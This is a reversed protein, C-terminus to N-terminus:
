SSVTWTGVYSTAHWKGVTVCVLRIACGNDTASIQDTGATEDAGIRITDTGDPVVTLTDNNQLVFEYSLGVQAPPLNFTIPTTTGTFVNGKEVELVTRPTTAQVQVPINSYGGRYQLCSFKSTLTSGELEWAGDAFCKIGIKIAHSGATGITVPYSWAHNNGANIANTIVAMSVWGDSDIQYYVYPSETGGTAKIDGIFSLLVVENLATTVALRLETIETVSSGSGTRDGTDTMETKIVGGAGSGSVLTGQVTISDSTDMHLTGATVKWEPSITHDGVTFAATAVFTRCEHTTTTVHQQWLQNDTGIYQVGSDINLRYRAMGAASTNYALVTCSILYTGAVPVVFTGNMESHITVFTSSTTTRDGTPFKALMAITAGPATTPTAQSLTQNLADAYRFMSEPPLKAGSQNLIYVIAQCSTGDGTPYTPLSWGDANRARLTFCYGGVKDLGADPDKTSSKGDAFDEVTGTAIVSGEPHGGKTNADTPICSWEWELIPENTAAGTLSIIKTPTLDTIPYTKEHLGACLATCVPVAM